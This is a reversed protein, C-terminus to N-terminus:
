IMCIFAVSSQRPWESYVGGVIAGAICATKARARIVTIPRCYMFIIVSLAIQRLIMGGDSKEDTM